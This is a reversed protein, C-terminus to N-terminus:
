AGGGMAASIQQELTGNAKKFSLVRHGGDDLNAQFSAADMLYHEPTLLDAGLPTTTYSSLTYDRRFAPQGEPHEKSFDYQTFRVTKALQCGLFSVHDSLVFRESTPYRTPGLQVEKIGGQKSRLIVGDTYQLRNPDSGAPKPAARLVVVKGNRENPIFPLSPGIIPVSYIFYSVVGPDRFSTTNKDAFLEYTKGDRIIVVPDSATESLTNIILLARGDFSLTLRGTKKIAM